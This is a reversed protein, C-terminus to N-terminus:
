FDIKFYYCRYEETNVFGLKEALKVSPTNTETCDWWPRKGEKLIENICRHALHYGIGQNRYKEDTVVGITKEKTTVFSSYCFGMITNEKVAYYGNGANLFNDINGWFQILEKEYHDWHLFNRPHYQNVSYIQFPSEPPTLNGSGEWTYILQKCSNLKQHAFIREITENWKPTIGSCEFYDLERNYLFPFLENKIFEPSKQLFLNSKQDGIFYFGKMGQSWVIAAKPETLDDVFIMGPNNKEIISIVEPFRIGGEMLPVLQDYAEECIRKM